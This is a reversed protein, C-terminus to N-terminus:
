ATVRRLGRLLTSQVNIVSYETKLAYPVRSLVALSAILRCLRNVHLCAPLRRKFAILSISGKELEWPFIYMHLLLPTRLRAWVDRELRGHGTQRGYAGQVPLPVSASFRYHCSMQSTTPLLAWAPQLLPSHQKVTPQTRWEQGEPIRCLLLM